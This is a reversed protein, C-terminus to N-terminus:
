ITFFGGDRRFLFYRASSEQYRSEHNVEYRPQREWRHIQVKVILDMQFRQLLEFIFSSSAQLRNGSERGDENQTKQYEGWVQSWLGITTQPDGSVFWQRSEADPELKMGSIVSPAASHPPYDIDGAWPDHRDLGALNHREAIWGKLHFKGEAIELRDDNAAPLDFWHSQSSQLARLLAESREPGTLASRVTFSEQRDSSGVIWDGWVNVRQDESILM